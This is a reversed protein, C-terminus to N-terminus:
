RLRGAQPNLVTIFLSFKAYCLPLENVRYAAVLPVSATATRTPNKVRKACCLPDVLSAYDPHTFQSTPMRWLMNVFVIKYAIKLENAKVM